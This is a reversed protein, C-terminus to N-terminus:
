CYNEGHLHGYLYFANRHGRFMDYFLATDGNIMTENLEGNMEVYIASLHGVVFILKKGDPDIENLKDKVWRMTENSYYGEHSNFATDPHINIGIFDIGGLTYRYCLIEKFKSNENRQVAVFDGVWETLYPEWDGSYESSGAAVGAESDHNGTVPLVLWDTSGDMMTEYVTKQAKAALTNDWYDNSNNSLIDGGILIVNAGGLAKLKNVADVTTKRIPKTWSQIGYDVHLDAFCAV